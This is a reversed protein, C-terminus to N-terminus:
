QNIIVPHPPGAMVRDVAEVCGNHTFVGLGATRSAIAERIAMGTNAHVSNLADFLDPLVSMAVDRAAVRSAQLVQDEIRALLARLEADSFGARAARMGLM